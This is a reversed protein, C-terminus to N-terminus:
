APRGSTGAAGAAARRLEGVRQGYLANWANRIPESEAQLARLSAHPIRVAVTEELVRAEPGDPLAIESVIGAVPLKAFDGTALLRTLPAGGPQIEVSGSFLVYTASTLDLGSGAPLKECSTQLSVDAVGREGPSAPFLQVSHLINEIIRQKIIGYVAEAMHPVEEIIAQFRAADIGLVLSDDLARLRATRPLKPIWLSFEGIITGTAIRIPHDVGPVDAGISGSVPFFCTTAPDGTECLVQGAAFRGPAAAELIRFLAEPTMLSLLPHLQPPYPAPPRPEAKGLMRCLEWVPDMAGLAHLFKAAALAAIPEGSRMADQILFRYEAQTREWLGGICQWRQAIAIPEPLGLEHRNVNLLELQLGHKVTRWQVPGCAFEGARPGTLYTDIYQKSVLLQDPAAISLIRAATNIGLGWINRTTGFEPAETVTGAHLGLRLRIRDGSRPIWDPRQAKECLSFAVDIAKSCAAPSAFTVYGGDGAPSWRYEQQAIGHYALAQGVWRILCEVARLQDADPWVSFAVMDIGLIAQAGEVSKHKETRSM